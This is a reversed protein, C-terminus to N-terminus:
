INVETLRINPMCPGGTCSFYILDKTKLKKSMLNMIENNRSFDINM